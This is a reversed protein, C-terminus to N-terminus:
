GGSVSIEQGESGRIAGLTAGHEERLPGVFELAGAREHLAKLDELRFGLQVHGAAKEPTAPHLALTVDGTVFETWFPTAFKVTQGLTDRYFAVAKEMDAVYAIAYVFKATM